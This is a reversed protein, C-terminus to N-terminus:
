HGPFAMLADVTLDAGRLRDAGHLDPLDIVFLAHTVKAGARRLLEAAALATGGTAILDDVIVVREGPAIAGPDIELRDRGYELAYDIGITAVPLKGPKRVPIFGLGLRAAVAAGFIFGRAEMGAVLSAGSAAARDALHRVCHAFGEGHSILTTIDRFLIGPEPFDPVARVLTKLQDPTM